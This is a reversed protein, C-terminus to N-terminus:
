CQIGFSQLQQKQRIGSVMLLQPSEFVGASLVIERKASLAFQKGHGDQAEIGVASGNKLSIRQVFTKPIVTINPKDDLFCVSTSRVGKYITNMCKVLGRQQGEYVNETLQEGKSVWAKQLASRFPELEPVM